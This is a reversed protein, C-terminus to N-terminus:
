LPPSPRYIRFGWFLLTGRCLIIPCWTSIFAKPLFTFSPLHSLSALASFHNPLDEGLLHCKLLPRICTQSFYIGPVPPLWHLPGPTPLLKTHARQSLAALSALTVGLKGVEAFRCFGECGSVPTAHPHSPNQVRLSRQFFMIDPVPRLDQSTGSFM